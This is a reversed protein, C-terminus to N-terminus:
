VCTGPVSFGRGPPTTHIKLALWRVVRPDAGSCARPPPIPPVLPRRLLAITDPCKGHTMKSDNLCSGTLDLVAPFKRLREIRVYSVLTHQSVTFHLIHWIASGYRQLTAWAQLAGTDSIGLRHMMRKPLVAHSRDLLHGLQDCQHREHGTRSASEAVSPSSIVVIRMCLQMCNHKAPARLSLEMRLCSPDLLPGHQNAPGQHRPSIMSCRVPILRRPVGHDKTPRERGMTQALWTAFPSELNLFSGFFFSRNNGGQPAARCPNSAFHKQLHSRKAVANYRSGWLTADTPSVWRWLTHANCIWLAKKTRNKLRPAWSDTAYPALRANGCSNRARPETKLIM